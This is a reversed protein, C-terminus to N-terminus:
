QAIRSRSKRQRYDGAGNHVVQCLGSDLFRSYLRSESTDDPQVNSMM